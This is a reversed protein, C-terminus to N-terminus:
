AFLASLEGRFSKSILEAKSNIQLKRYINRIHDRVTNISISLRDAILKYSLGEVVCQVIQQEKATLTEGKSPKAPNFHAIVKRAISPTMPSGGAMVTEIAQSIETLPTNKELYGVAGACLAKYINDTDTYVSVMIIETNPSIQKILPIGEIGTKGPLGIDSIIVQPPISLQELQEMFEEVSGASAVISFGEQHSLYKEQGKRIAVIDEILGITIM